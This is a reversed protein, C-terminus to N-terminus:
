QQVLLTIKNSKKLFHDKKNVIFAAMLNIVVKHLTFCYISSQMHEVDSGMKMAIGSWSSLASLGIWVVPILIINNEIINYQAFWYFHVDDNFHM